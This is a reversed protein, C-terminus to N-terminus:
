IPLIRLVRYHMNSNRLCLFDIVMRLGLEYRSIQPERLPIASSELKRLTIGHHSTFLYSGFDELITTGKYEPNLIIREKKITM